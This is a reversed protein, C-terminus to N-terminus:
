PVTYITSGGVQHHRGIIWGFLAGLMALSVVLLGEDEKSPYQAEVGAGIGAGAGAGIAAGLLGGAFGSGPKKVSRITERQFNRVQLSVGPDHVTLSLMDPTVRQLNGDWNDGNATKVILPTGIPVAEVRSWDSKTSQAFVPLALCGILLCARISQVMNTLRVPTRVPYVATLAIVGQV